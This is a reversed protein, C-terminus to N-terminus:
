ACVLLVPCDQIQKIQLGLLCVFCFSFVQVKVFIVSYDLLVDLLYIFYVDGWIVFIWKVVVMKFGYMYLILNSTLISVSTM